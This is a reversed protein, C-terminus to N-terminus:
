AQVIWGWTGLEGLPDEYRSTAVGHGCCVPELCFFYRYFSWAADLQGCGSATPLPLSAHLGCDKIFGDGM